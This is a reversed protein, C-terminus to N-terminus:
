SFRGSNKIPRTLDKLQNKLEVGEQKVAVLNRLRLELSRQQNTILGSSFLDDLKIREVQSASRGLEDFKQKLQDLRQAQEDSVKNQFEFIVTERSLRLAEERDQRTFGTRSTEFLTRQTAKDLALEFQREVGRFALNIERSGRSRDAGSRFGRLSFEAQDRRNFIDGFFKTFQKRFEEDAKARERSAEAAQKDALARDKIIKISLEAQRRSEAESEGFNRSGEIQSRRRREDFIDDFSVAKEANRNIVATEQNIREIFSDAAAKIGIFSLFALNLPGGVLSSLGRGFSAASRAISRLGNGALRLPQRLSDRVFSGAVVGPARSVSGRLSRLQPGPGSRNGTAAFARTAATAQTRGAGGRFGINNRARAQSFDTLRPEAAKAANFRLQAKTAENTAATVGGLSGVYSAIERTFQSFKNAAFFAIVGPTAAALVPGITAIIKIFTQALDAAIKFGTNIATIFAKSTEPDRLLNNIEGLTNKFEDGVGADRLNVIFAEFNNALINFQGNLTNINETANRGFSRELEAVFLPLTKEAIVEGNKLMKDLEETGVGIAKAFKQVSGPISDALQLRLEESSVKGKSIIQEFALLTREQKQVSLGLGAFTKVLSEYIDKTAQGELTTGQAAANLRVLGDALSRVRLGYKEALATVFAFEQAAVEQTGFVTKLKLDLEDYAAIIQTIERLGLGIGLTFTLGQLRRVTREMLQLGGGLALVGQNARRGERGINRLRGAVGNDRIRININTSPM